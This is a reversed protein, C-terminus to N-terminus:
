GGGINLPIGGGGFGIFGIFEVLEMGPGGSLPGLGKIDIIGFGIIFGCIVTPIPGM